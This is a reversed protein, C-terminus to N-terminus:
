FAMSDQKPDIETKKVDAKTQIDVNAIMKIELNPYGSGNATYTFSVVGQMKKGDIEIDLNEGTPPGDPNTMYIKVRHLSPAIIQEAM